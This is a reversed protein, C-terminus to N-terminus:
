SRSLFALNPLDERLPNTQMFHHGHSMDSLNLTPAAIRDKVAEKSSPYQNQKTPERPELLVKTSITEAFTDGLTILMVMNTAACHM